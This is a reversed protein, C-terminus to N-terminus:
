RRRKSCPLLCCPGEENFAAETLEVKMAAMAIPAILFGGLIRLGDLLGGVDGVWDLLSYTSREISTMSPHLETWISNIKYM